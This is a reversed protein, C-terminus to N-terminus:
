SLIVKLSRRPAETNLDQEGLSTNKLEVGGGARMRMRLLNIKGLHSRESEFNLPPRKETR